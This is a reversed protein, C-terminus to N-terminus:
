MSRPECVSIDVVFRGMISECAQETVYYGLGSCDSIALPKDAFGFQSAYALLASPTLVDDVPTSFVDDAMVCTKAVILVRGFRFCVDVLRPFSWVESNDCLMLPKHEQGRLASIGVLERVSLIAM